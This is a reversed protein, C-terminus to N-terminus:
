PLTLPPNGIAPAALNGSLALAHLEVSVTFALYDRIAQLRAGGIPGAVLNVLWM